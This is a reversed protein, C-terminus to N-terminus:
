PDRDPAIEDKTRTLVITEESLLNLFSQDLGRPNDCLLVMKGRPVQNWNSEGKLKKGKANMVVLTDLPIQVVSGSTKYGIAKKTELVKQGDRVVEVQVEKETQTRKLIQLTLMGKDTDIAEVIAFEPPACSPIRIEPQNSDLPAFLTCLFFSALLRLCSM